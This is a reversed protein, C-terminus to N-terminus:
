ADAARVIIRGDDIRVVKVPKGSAITGFEARADHREHDFECVGTPRLESITVGQQGLGVRPPQVISESPQLMMRRGIPTRPWINVAATIAFPAAIITAALLGLGVWQNVGFARWIAYVIAGCGMLGLVGQTPLMLEGILLVVGGALLLLIILM